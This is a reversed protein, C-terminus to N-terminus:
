MLKEIHFLDWLYKAILLIIIAPKGDIPQKDSSSLSSAPVTSFGHEFTFDTRGFVMVSTSSSGFVKATYNGPEPYNLKMM